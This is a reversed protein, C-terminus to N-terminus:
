AESPTPESFTGSPPITANEHSWCDPLTGGSASGTRGDAECGGADGLGDGEGLWGGAPPPEPPPDSPPDPPDPPDSPDPPDPVDPAGGVDPVGEVVLGHHGM